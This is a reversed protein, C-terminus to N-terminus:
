KLSDVPCNRVIVLFSALDFALLLGFAVIEDAHKVARDQIRVLDVPVM